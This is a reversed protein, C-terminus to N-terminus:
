KTSHCKLERMYKEAEEFAKKVVEDVLEQVNFGRMIPSLKLEVEVTLTLPKEAVAEVTINLVEIRKAPVRSLVHRRATEEAITCLGEVQEPTLEPLGLEEM